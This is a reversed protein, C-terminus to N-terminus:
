CHDGDVNCTKNSQIQSGYDIASIYKVQVLTLLGKPCSNVHAFLARVSSLPLGTLWFNHIACVTHM